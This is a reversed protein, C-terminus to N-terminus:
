DGLGFGEDGPGGNSPAEPLRRAAHYRDLAMVAERANEMDKPLRTVSGDEYKGFYVETPASLRVSGIRRGKGDPHADEVAADPGDVFFHGWVPVGHRVFRASAFPRSVGDIEKERLLVDRVIGPLVVREEAKERQTAKWDVAIQDSRMIGARESGDALAFTVPIDAGAPLRINFRGAVPNGAGDKAQYVSRRGAQFSMSGGDAESGPLTIGASGDANWAILDKPVNRLFVNERFTLGHTAAKLRASLADGMSKDAGGARELAFAMCDIGGGALDLLATRGDGHRVTRDIQELIDEYPRAMDGSGRKRHDEAVAELAGRAFGIEDGALRMKAQM